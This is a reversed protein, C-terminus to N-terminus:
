AEVALEIRPLGVVTGNWGHQPRRGEVTESVNRWAGNDQVCHRVILTAATRMTGGCPQPGRVKGAPHNTGPSQIELLLIDLHSKVHLKFLTIKVELYKHVGFSALM